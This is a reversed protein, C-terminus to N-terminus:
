LSVRAEMPQRKTAAAKKTRAHKESWVLAAQQRREFGRRGSGLGAAGSDFTRSRLRFFALVWHLMISGTEKVKQTAGYMGSGTSVIDHPTTPTSVGYDVLWQPGTPVPSNRSPRRIRILRSSSDYIVASVPRAPVSLHIQASRSSEPVEQAVVLAVLALLTTFRM